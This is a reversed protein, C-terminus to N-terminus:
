SRLYRWEWRSLARSRSHEPPEDTNSISIIYTLIATDGGVHGGMTSFLPVPLKHVAQVVRALGYFLQGWDGPLVGCAAGGRRSAAGRVCSWWIVCIPRPAFLFFFCFFSPAGETTVWIEKLFGNVCCIPSLQPRAAVSFSRARKIAM